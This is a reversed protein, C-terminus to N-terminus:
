SAPRFKYFKVSLAFDNDRWRVAVFDRGVGALGWYANYRGVILGTSDFITWAKDSPYDSVWLQGSPDYQMLLMSEYREPRRPPHSKISAAHEPSAGRPIRRELAAAWQEDTIRDRTRLLRTVRRLNQNEDYVKFEYTASNATVLGHQFPLFLPTAGVRRRSFKGITRMTSDNLGVLSYNVFDSLTSDAVRRPLKAIISNNATQVASSEVVALGESNCETRVAGPRRGITRLHTGRSDWITTRGDRDFAMLSDGHLACLNVIQSFEGPGRGKQGVARILRGHRDYFLLRALDSLVIQGDTLEVVRLSANDGDLEENLDSKPGGIELFPDSDVRLSPLQDLRLQTPNIPNPDMEVPMAGLTSYEVIRVGASDRLDASPVSRNPEITGHECGVSVAAALFILAKAFDLRPM